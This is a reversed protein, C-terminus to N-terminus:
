PMRKHIMWSGGFKDTWNGRLQDFTFMDYDQCDQYKVTVEEDQWNVMLITGNPQQKTDLREEVWIKQGVLIEERNGTPRYRSM